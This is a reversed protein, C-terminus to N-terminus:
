LQKEHPLNDHVLLQSGNRMVTHQHYPPVLTIRGLQSFNSLRMRLGEERAAAAHVYRTRTGIRPAVAQRTPEGGGGRGGQRAHCILAPSAAANAAFVVVAARVRGIAAHVAREGGASAASPKGRRRPLFVFCRRRRRRIEPVSLTRLLCVRRMWRTYRALPFCLLALKSVLCM